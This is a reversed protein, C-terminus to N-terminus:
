VVPGYTVIITNFIKKSDLKEKKIYNDFKNM